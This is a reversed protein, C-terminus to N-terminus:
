TGPRADQRTTNDFLPLVPTNCPPPLLVEAPKCLLPVVPLAVTGECSPDMGPLGCSPLMGVKGSCPAGTRGDGGLGTLLLVVLEVLLGELLLLLVLLLLVVLLLLLVM